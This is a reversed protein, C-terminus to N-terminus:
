VDCRSVCSLSITIRHLSRRFTTHCRPSLIYASAFLPLVCSLVHPDLHPNVCSPFPRCLSALLLLARHVYLQLAPPVETPLLRHYPIFAVTTFMSSIALFMYLDHFMCKPLANNNALTCQVNMSSPQDSSSQPNYQCIFLHTSISQCNSAFLSHSTRCDVRRPEEMIGIADPDIGAATARERQARILAKLLPLEEALNVQTNEPWRELAWSRVYTSSKMLKTAAYKKFFSPHWVPKLVYNIM